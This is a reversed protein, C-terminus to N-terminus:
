GSFSSRSSKHGQGALSQELKEKECIKIFFNIARGTHDSISHSFVRRHHGPVGDLSDDVLVHHAVGGSVPLGPVRGHGPLLATRDERAQRRPLRVSDVHPGLPAALLALLGVGRGQCTRVSCSGPPLSSASKQILLSTDM